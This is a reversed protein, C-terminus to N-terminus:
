RCQSPDVGYRWDALQAAAAPKLGFLQELQAQSYCQLDTAAAVGDVHLALCPLRAHRRSNVDAAMSHQATSHQATLVMVPAHLWWRELAM